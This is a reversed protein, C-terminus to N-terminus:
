YEFARLGLFGEGIHQHRDIRSGKDGRSDNAHILKLRGLGVERDLEDLTKELGEPFRLEYGAAFAHCTDFCLGLSEDGKFARLIRGLQSFDHGVSNGAGATTELLIPVGGGRASLVRELAHMVRGVGFDEGKGGHSGLHTVVAASGLDAAAEINMVLSAISREWVEDVPAALNILYITHVFIPWLDREECIARFISIDDPVMDSHKWSRPNSVFIQATECTREVAREVAGFLGGGISM